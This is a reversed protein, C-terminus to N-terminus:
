VAGEVIKKSLANIGEERGGIVELGMNLAADIINETEKDINTNEKLCVLQVEPKDVKKAKYRSGIRGIPSEMGNRGRPQKKGMRASLKFDFPNRLNKAKRRPRGRKDESGLM